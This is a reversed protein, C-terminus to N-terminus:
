KKLYDSVIPLKSNQCHKLIAEKLSMNIAGPINVGGETANLVKDSLHM